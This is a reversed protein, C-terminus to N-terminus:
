RKKSYAYALAFGTLLLSSLLGLPIILNLDVSVLDVEFTKTPTEVQNGAEDALEFWWYYIGNIDDAYRGVLYEITFTFSKESTIDEKTWSNMQPDKTYCLYITKIGSADEPEFAVLSVTNNEGPNILENTQTIQSYSPATYDQVTFNFIGTSAYNGVTDNYWLYWQWFQGYSLISGNFVYNQTETILEKQWTQNDVRFYIYITDLGCADTPEFIYTSISNSESYEPELDDQVILACTPPTRDVVTFNYVDTQIGNGATDNVWFYWYYQQNYVLIENSFVYSETQTVDTYTWPGDRLCYYFIIKDIGSASSPENPDIFITYNDYYERTGYTRITPNPAITDIVEFSQVITQNYNGATDNFWFFWDYLEGYNLMKATFTYKKTLSIDQINWTGKNISYYLLVKDLGSADILESVNISVDILENYEYFSNTISHNNLLPAYTDIVSFSQVLTENENGATDNFWFYWEYEQGFFLTEETFTYDYLNAVDVITWSGNILRYYLLLTDLGSADNPEFLNISITNAMNYEILDETQNLTIVTPPTIDIVEFSFIATMNVNGATDNIWFYWQIFQGYSLFDATFTYNNTQATTVFSWPNDDVKYYLLITDISSAGTPEEIVITVTNSEDYEIVSNTQYVDTYVKPNIDVIVFYMLGTQYSQGSASNFWFYWEWIQQFFLLDSTFTYNQSGTVDVVNWVGNDVRYYILLTDIDLYNISGFYITHDEDYNREYVPENTWIISSLDSSYIEYTNGQIFGDSATINFIATAISIRSSNIIYVGVGDGGIGNEGTYGGKGGIGGTINFIITHEIIVNTSNIIYIGVGLGGTGGSGSADGSGGAGGIINIITNNKFSCNSCNLLYIGAGLTGNLGNALFEGTAGNMGQYNSIATNEISINHCNILVIKGLNTPNCVTILNLDKIVLDSRNYYYIIFENNITNNEIINDHSNDDLFFGFGTGKNGVVSGISVLGGVGGIIDILSNNKIDNDLSNQLCIGIGLGGIGGSGYYGGSGGVGGIINSISNFRIINDYSNKLYIAIGDGGKGGSSYFGGPGGTGGLINNISNFEVMIGYSGLLSIATGTFGSSGQEYVDGTDGNCGHYNSINNNKITINHCYILVIKGLNTPNCTSNLNLGEIILNSQGYFYIIPESDITNTLSIMNQYSNGEFFIGFGINDTGNPGDHDGKGGFGGRINIMINTNYTNNYSNLLFIGAGMGGSGGSGQVNGGIGGSGGIINNIFNSSFINDFSDLLFIGAGIGGSAGSRYIGDGGGGIGGSIDNIINNIVTNNFSNLLYIGTGINGSFGNDGNEGIINYILNNSLLNYRSNDLHIGYDSNNFIQNNIVYCDQSNDLRIGFSNNEFTNNEILCENSYYLYLGNYTNRINCNIIKAEDSNIWIGSLEGSSYGAYQLT